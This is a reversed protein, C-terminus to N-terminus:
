HEPRRQREFPPKLCLHDSAAGVRGDSAFQSGGHLLPPQHARECLSSHAMLAWQSVNASGVELSLQGREVVDDCLRGIERRFLAIKFKVDRLSARKTDLELYRPESCIADQLNDFSPIGNEKPM